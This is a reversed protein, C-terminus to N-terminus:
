RRVCGGNNNKDLCVARNGQGSTRVYHLICEDQAGGVGGGGNYVSDYGGSWPKVDGLGQHICPTCLPTFLLTDRGGSPAINLPHTILSFNM